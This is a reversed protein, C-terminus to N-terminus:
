CRIKEGLIIHILLPDSGIDSGNDQVVKLSTIISVKADPKYKGLFTEIQKLDMIDVILKQYKM